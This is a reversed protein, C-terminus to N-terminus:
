EIEEAGISKLELALGAVTAYVRDARRAFVQNVLGLADRYVRGIETPPVVGLGVENSVVVWTANGAAYIELLKEAVGGMRQEQDPEDPKRLLLNSVWVTLCDILVVDYDGAQEPLVNVLHLPEEVTDWGEPRRRKHAEIRVAMDEDGAEATAVFLVRNSAGALREALASKGSRAGGLVLVLEKM